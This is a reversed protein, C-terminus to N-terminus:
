ARSAASSASYHGTLALRSFLVVWWVRIHVMACRPSASADAAFGFKVSHRPTAGFGLDGGIIGRGPMVERM